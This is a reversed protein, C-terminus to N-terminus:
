YYMKLISGIDLQEDNKSLIIACEPNEGIQVLKKNHNHILYAYYSENRLTESIHNISNYGNNQWTKSIAIANNINNTPQVMTINNDINSIIMDDLKYPINYINSCLHEKHYKTFDILSMNVMDREYSFIIEGENKKYDTIYKYYNELMKKDKYNLVKDRSREIISLLYFKLREKLENSSCILKNGSVFNPEKDFSDSINNDYEFNERLELNNNIFNKLKNPEFKGNITKSFLYLVWSQLCRAIKDNKTYEELENHINEYYITLHIDRTKGTIYIIKRNSEYEYVSSPECLTKIFDHALEKNVSEFDGVEMVDVNLPPLPSTEVIFPGSDSNIKLRRVKGYNDIYQSIIKTINTFLLKDIPYEIIGGRNTIVMKNYIEWCFSTMSFEPQFIMYENKIDQRDTSPSHVILECQPFLLNESPAGIHVYIFVSPLSEDRKYEVFGQESNGSLIIGNPYKLNKVFLLINIKYLEEILRRVKLPDLYEDKSNLYEKIQQLTMGSMDQACVIPSIEGESLRERERTVNATKENNSLHIFGNNLATMVCELFSNVSRSVGLRLINDGEINDFCEIFDLNDPFYGLNGNDIIKNTKKMYVQQKEDEKVEVDEYYEKIGKESQDRTFCCPQYGIPTQDTKVLGIYPYKSNTCTYYRQKTIYNNKPFKIVQKGQAQLKMAEKEDIITPHREKPQCKRSYGEDFIIPDIQRLFRKDEELKIEQKKEVSVGIYQLYDIYPDYHFKYCSLTKCILKKVIDFDRDDKVKFKILTYPTRIPYIDQSQAIRQYMSINITKQELIPTYYLHRSLAETDQVNDNLSLLNNIYETNMLIMGFLRMDVTMESTFSVVKDSIQLEKLEVKDSLINKFIDEISIKKSIKVSCSIFYNNDEKKIQLEILENENTKYIILINEDSSQWNLPTEFNKYIKYINNFTILMIEKTVHLSNFLNNMDYAFDFYQQTTNDIIEIATSPVEEIKDINFLSTYINNQEIAFADFQKVIEKHEEEKDIHEYNYNEPYSIENRTQISILLASINDTRHYILWLYFIEQKYNPYKDILTYVKSDPHTTLELLNTVKYKNGVQEIHVYKPLARVIWCIRNRISEETDLFFTTLPILQGNYEVFSM